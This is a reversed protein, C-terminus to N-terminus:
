RHRNRFLIRELKIWLLQQYQLLKLMTATLSELCETQEFFGLYKM